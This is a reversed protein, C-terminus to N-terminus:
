LVGLRSALVLVLLVVWLRGKYGLGGFASFFGVLVFLMEGVLVFLMEGVLVSLMEGVPGLPMEGVLGLLVVGVLELLVMWELEFYPCQSLGLDFVLDLGILLVGVSM